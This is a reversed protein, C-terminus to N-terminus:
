PPNSERAAHSRGGGLMAPGSANNWTSPRVTRRQISPVRGVGSATYQLKPHFDGRGEPIFDLLYRQSWISDVHRPNHGPDSPGNRLEAGFSHRVLRSKLNFVNL